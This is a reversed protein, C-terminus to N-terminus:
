RQNLGNSLNLWCRVPCEKEDLGTLTIDIRKSSQPIHLEVAVGTDDPIDHDRLVSAMYRLSDKWSRVESASVGRGTAQRYSQLIVDEIDRDDNDALFRDKQSQYVIM